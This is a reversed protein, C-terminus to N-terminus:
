RLLVSCATAGNPSIAGGPKVESDKYGCWICDTAMIVVEKFHPIETICMRTECERHCNHCMGPITVGREALDTVKGEM